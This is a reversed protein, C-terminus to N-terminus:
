GKLRRFGAAWQQAAPGLDLTVSGFSREPTVITLFNRNLTGSASAGLLRGVFHVGHRRLLLVQGEADRLLAGFGARDVAVEIPDFGCLVEDALARAHEADRIRPEGGLGLRGALWALFLIAVLSAALQILQFSM